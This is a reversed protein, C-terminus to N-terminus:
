GVRTAEIQETGEILAGFEDTAVELAEEIADERNDAQVTVRLSEPNESVDYEGKGDDWMIGYLYVHWEVM